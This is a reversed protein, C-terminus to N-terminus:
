NEEVRLSMSQDNELTSELSQPGEESESEKKKDKIESLKELDLDHDKIFKDFLEIVERKIKTKTKQTTIKTMLYNKMNLFNNLLITTRNKLEANMAQDIAADIFNSLKSFESELSDNSELSLLDEIEKKM